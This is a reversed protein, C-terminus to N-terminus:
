PDWGVSPWFSVDEPPPLPYYLSFDDGGSVFISSPLVNTFGDTLFSYWFQRTGGALFADVGGVPDSANVPLFATTCLFPATGEIVQSISASIMAMGDEVRRFEPVSIAINDTYSIYNVMKMSVQEFGETGDLMMKFKVQGSWFGFLKSIDDFVGTESPYPINLTISTRHSWRRALATFTLESDSNFPLDPRSSVAAPDDTCLSVVKMQSKFKKPKYEEEEPVYLPFPNVLSRFQFDHGASVYVVYALAPAIDGVGILPSALQMFLYPMMNLSYTNPDSQWQTSIWPQSALLPVNMDVRTTGRITVDRVLENGVAQTPATGYALTIMVRGSVFPSTFFIISVNISGKYMRFYQLMYNFRAYYPADNEAGFGIQPQAPTLVMFPNDGTSSLLGSYALSPLRCYDLISMDSSMGFATGSGLIYRPANSVLDGYVNPKLEGKSEEDGGTKATLVKAASSVMSITNAANQVNEHLSPSSNYLFSSMGLALSSFTEINKFARAAPNLPKGSQSLFPEGTFWRNAQVPGAAEPSVIRMFVQLVVATNVSSDLVKLPNAYHAVCLRFNNMFATTDGPPRNLDLWQEPSLWPSSLVVDQQQSFDLLVTDTHSFFAKLSNQTSTFFNHLNGPLCTLACYGYQQPLASYQVRFEVAKFRFYRFTSLANKIAPVSLQLSGSRTLFTAADTTSVVISTHEFWRSLIEVPTQDM